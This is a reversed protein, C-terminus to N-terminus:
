KLIRTKPRNFLDSSIDINNLRYYIKQLVYLPVEKNLYALLNPEIECIPTVNAYHYKTLEENEFVTEKRQITTKATKIYVPKNTFIDILKSEYGDALPGRGGLLRARIKTAIYKVIYYKGYEEFVYVHNINIKPHNNEMIEKLNLLERKEKIISEKLEELQKKRTKFKIM